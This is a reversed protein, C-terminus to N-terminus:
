IISIRFVSNKNRSEQYIRKISPQMENDLMLPPNKRSQNIMEKGGEVLIIQM